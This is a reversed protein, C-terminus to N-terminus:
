AQAEGEGEKKEEEGGEQPDVHMIEENIMITPM